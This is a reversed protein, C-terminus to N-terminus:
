LNLNWMKENKLESSEELAKVLRMEGDTLRVQAGCAHCSLGALAVGAGLHILPTLSISLNLSWMEHCDKKQCLDLIAHRCPRTVWQAVLLGIELVSKGRVSPIVQFDDHNSLTADILLRSLSQAVPWVGYGFLLDSSPDEDLEWYEVEVTDLRCNRDGPIYSFM